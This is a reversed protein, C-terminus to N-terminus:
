RLGWRLSQRGRVVEPECWSAQVVRGDATIQLRPPLLAALAAAREAATTGALLREPPDINLDHALDFVHAVLTVDIGGGASLRLDLYSFPVPHAFAPAGLMLAIACIFGLRKM